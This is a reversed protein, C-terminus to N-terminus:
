YRYATTRFAHLHHVQRDHVKRPPPPSTKKMTFVVRYSTIAAGDPISLPEEPTKRKIGKNESLRFGYWTGRQRHKRTARARVVAKRYECTLSSITRAGVAGDGDGEGGDEALALLAGTASTQRSDIM